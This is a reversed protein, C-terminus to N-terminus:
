CTRRGSNLVREKKKKKKKKEMRERYTAKKGKFITNKLPNPPPSSILIVKSITDVKAMQKRLMAVKSEVKRRMMTNVNGKSSVLELLKEAKQFVYQRYLSNDAM